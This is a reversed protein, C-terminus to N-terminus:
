LHEYYSIHKNLNNLEEKEKKRKELTRREKNTKEVWEILHGISVIPIWVPSLLVAAILAWICFFAQATFEIAQALRHKWTLNM